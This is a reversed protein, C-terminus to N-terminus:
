SRQSHRSVHRCKGGEQQNRQRFHTNQIHKETCFEHTRAARTQSNRKTQQSTELNTQTGAAAQRDNRQDDGAHRPDPFCFVFSIAPRSYKLSEIGTTKCDIGLWGLM